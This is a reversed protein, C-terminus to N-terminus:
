SQVHVLMGFWEWDRKYFFEHTDYLPHPKILFEKRLEDKENLSFINGPM